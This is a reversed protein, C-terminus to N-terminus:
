CRKLDADVFLKEMVLDSPMAAAATLVRRANVKDGHTYLRLGEFCNVQFRQGGDQAQAMLHAATVNGLTLEALQGHWPSIQLGNQAACGAIKAEEDRGRRFNGIMYLQYFLHRGFAAAGHGGFIACTDYDGEVFAMAPKMVAGTRAHDISRDRPMEFLAYADGVAPTFSDGTASNGLTVNGITKVVSEYIMESFERAEPTSCCEALIQSQSFGALHYRAIEIMLIQIKRIAAPSWGKSIPAALMGALEILFQELHLGELVKSPTSM